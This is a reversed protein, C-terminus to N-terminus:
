KRRGIQNVCVDTHKPLSFKPFPVSSYKHDFKGAGFLPCHAFFQRLMQGLDALQEAQRLRVKSVQRAEAPDGDGLDLPPFTRIVQSWRFAM